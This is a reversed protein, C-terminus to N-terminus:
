HNVWKEIVLVGAEFSAQWWEATSRCTASLGLPSSWVVFHFIM